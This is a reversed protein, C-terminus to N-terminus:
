NKGQIFLYLVIEMPTILIQFFIEPRSGDRIASHICAFPTRIGPLGSSWITDEGRRLGCCGLASLVTLPLWAESRWGTPVYWATFWLCQSGASALSKVIPLVFRLALVVVWGCVSRQPGNFIEWSTSQLKPFWWKGTYGWNWLCADGVLLM